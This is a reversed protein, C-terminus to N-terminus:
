CSKHQYRPAQCASHVRCSPLPSSPRAWPLAGASGVGGPGALTSVTVGRLTKRGTRACAQSHLHLSRPRALGSILM